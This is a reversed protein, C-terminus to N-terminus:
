TRNVDDGGRLSDLWDGESDIDLSLMKSHENALWPPLEDVVALGPLEREIRERTEAWLYAWIGGMGYDHCVLFPRKAPM